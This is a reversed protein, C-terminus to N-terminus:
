CQTSSPGLVSFPVKDYDGGSMLAFLVLGGRTLQVEPHTALDDSTYISVHAASPKGNADTAPHSKNGTLNLSM